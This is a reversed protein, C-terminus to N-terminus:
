ASVARKADDDGARQLHEEPTEWLGTHARYREVYPITRANTLTRSQAMWVVIPQASQADTLLRPLETMADHGQTRCDSSDLSQLGEKLDEAVRSRTKLRRRIPSETM